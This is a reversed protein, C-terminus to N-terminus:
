AGRDGMDGLPTAWKQSLEKRLLANVFFYYWAAQPDRLNAKFELARRLISPVSFYRARTERLKDYLDQPSMQKPQFVIQGFRYGPELWWKPYLLRGEAQMRAYLPTGPFPQMHNFATVFFKQEMAFEYTREFLDPTDTDYGFVFTAYIKIGHDRLRALSDRFKRAGQNFQKKMSKLTDEGLSEFGILIGACGSREMLTLLEEDTGTQITAQSLWSIKLPTLTRFLEKARGFDTTLNDDVLFVRKRGTSTIEEAVEAAPRWRFDQKFYATVSCFDCVFNCGRGTEVLTLPMYKKGAFVSRDPKVSYVRPRGQSRYEPQL